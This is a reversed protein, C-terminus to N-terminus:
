LLIPQLFSRFKFIYHSTFLRALVSRFVSFMDLDRLKLLFTFSALFELFSDSLQTIGILFCEIFEPYIYLCLLLFRSIINLTALSFNMLSYYLLQPVIKILDLLIFISIQNPDSFFLLNELGRSIM